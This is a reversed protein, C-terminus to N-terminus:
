VRTLPFTRLHSFTIAEEMGNLILPTVSGHSGCVLVTLQSWREARLRQPLSAVQSSRPHLGAGHVGGRAAERLRPASLQAGHRAKSLNKYDGSHVFVAFISCFKFIAASCSQGPPWPARHGKASAQVQGEGLDGPQSGTPLRPSRGYSTRRKATHFGLWWKWILSRALTQTARVVGREASDDSRVRAAGLARQCRNRHHGGRAAEREQPSDRRLAESVEGQPSERSSASGELGTERSVTWFFPPRFRVPGLFAKTLCIRREMRTGSLGSWQKHTKQASYKPPAGRWPGRSAGLSVPGSPRLSDRSGPASPGGASRM